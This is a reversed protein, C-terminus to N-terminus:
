PMYNIQFMEAVIDNNSTAEGTILFNINTALNEASTTYDVTSILVSSSTEIKTVCKQASAGTRIIKSTVTWESSTTIALAGTDFITTGGFKVRIRKNNVSNAFSGSCTMELSMGDVSLTNADIQFTFLTDDGTGINGVSSFQKNLIGGASFALASAAKGGLVGQSSVDGNIIISNNFEFHSNALLTMVGAPDFYITHAASVISLQDDIESFFIGITPASVDNILAGFPSSIYFQDAYLDVGFIGNSSTGLQFNLGFLGTLVTEGMVGGIDIANANVTTGNGDVLNTGAPASKWVKQNTTANFDTPRVIDPLSEADTGSVLEYFRFVNDTTDRYAICTGVPTVGNNVTVIAKLATITNIGPSTGKIGNYKNDDFTFAMNAIDTVFDRLDAESIDKTTNDKFLGSGPDNYKIQLASRNM